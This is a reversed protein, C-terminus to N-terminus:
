LFLATIITVYMTSISNGFEHLHNLYRKPIVERSSASRMHQAASSHILALILVASLNHAAKIFRLKNVILASINLAALFPAFFVRIVFEQLKLLRTVLFNRLDRISAPRRLSPLEKKVV